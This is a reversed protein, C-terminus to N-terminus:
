NTFIKIYLSFFHYEEDVKTVSYTLEVGPKRAIDIMGLGAGGKESFGTNTLVDLYLSQLEEKSLYKIHELHSTLKELNDEKVFNGTVIFYFNEMKGISFMSSHGGYDDIHHYLNQLAEVSIHVVKKRLGPREKMKRLKDDLNVFVSSILEANVDGKFVLFAHEEELYKYYEKIDFM